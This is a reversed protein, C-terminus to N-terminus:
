HRKKREFQFEAFASKTIMEIGQRKLEETISSVGVKIFNEFLMQMTDQDKFTVYGTDPDKFQEHMADSMAKVGRVPMQAIIENWCFVLEVTDIIKGPKQKKAKKSM